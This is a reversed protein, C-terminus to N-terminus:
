MWSQSWSDGPLMLMGSTTSRSCRKGSQHAHTFVNDYSSLSGLFWLSPQPHEVESRTFAITINHHHVITQCKFEPSARRRLTSRIQILTIMNSQIDVHKFRWRVAKCDLGEGCRIYLSGVLLSGCKVAAEDFRCAVGQAQQSSLTKSVMDVFLARVSKNGLSDHLLSWASYKM